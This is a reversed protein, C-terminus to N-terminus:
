GSGRSVQLLLEIMRFTDHPPVPKELYVAGVRHARIEAEANAHTTHVIIPIAATHRNHRLEEAVCRASADTPLLFETVIISPQEAEAMRLADDASECELTRYQNYELFARLIERSDEDPDALLVSYSMTRRVTPSIFWRALPRRRQRHAARRM